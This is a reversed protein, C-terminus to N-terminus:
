EGDTAPAVANEAKLYYQKQTTDGHAVEIMTMGEAGNVIGVDDTNGDIWITPKGYEETTNILTAGNINLVGASLGSAEGKSVEIGGFTNGSVDITGELNVTAGNVIFAANGGTFKSDKVTHTGTYFQIEYSSNWEKNDGTNRITVDKVTMDATATIVKGAVDSSITKNLGELTMAHSVTLAKDTTIDGALQVTAPNTDAFAAELGKGDAVNSIGAGTKMVTVVFGQDKMAEGVQMYYFAEKYDDVDFSVENNVGVVALNFQAMPVSFPISTFNFPAPVDINGFGAVNTAYISKGYEKDGGIPGGETFVPTDVYSNTPMFIRCIPAVLRDVDKEIGVYKITVTYAM